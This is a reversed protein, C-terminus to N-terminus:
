PPLQTGPLGNSNLNAEALATRMLSFLVLQEGHWFTQAGEVKKLQGLPRLKNSVLKGLM